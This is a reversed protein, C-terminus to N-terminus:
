FAHAPHAGILFEAGLWVSHAPHDLHDARDYNYQLRFHTFESPQWTILPSLRTRDDRMADTSRDVETRELGDASTSLNGGSGWCQEVRLGAAWRPMFGYVAQVVFGRDRLTAEEVNGVVAGGSLLEAGPVGYLRDIYESEFLVFPWGGEGGAPHWKVAADLGWLVTRTDEGAANRSTAVSTGFKAMADDSDVSNVWRATALLDALSRTGHAVFERGGVAGAEENSLFSPATEGDADMIGATLDSLWPTPLSCSVRAGPTRQGDGGFVRSLIVPQDIFQWAHPHTPNLRGFELLYLGAKVELGAPLSTSRAYAEELEFVTEGSPEDRLAVMHAAAQFYPDVAGVFGLEAGQMTFGRRQPDHGGGQLRSIEDDTATSGGVATLVDLSLDILRLRSGGAAPPPATRSGEVADLRSSLEANQRSLIDLQDQLSPEAAGLAAFSSISLTLGGLAARSLTM